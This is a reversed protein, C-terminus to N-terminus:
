PGGFKDGPAGAGYFATEECLLAGTDNNYVATSLCTPAHRRLHAVLPMIKGHTPAFESGSNVKFVGTIVHM